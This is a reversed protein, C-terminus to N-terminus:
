FSSNVLFILMFIYTIKHQTVLDMKYFKDGANKGAM